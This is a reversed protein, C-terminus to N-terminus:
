QGFIKTGRKGEHRLRAELGHRGQGREVAEAEEIGGGAVLTEHAGGLLEADRGGGDGVADPHEFVMEAGRQEVAVVARHTEVIAAVLVMGVDLADEGVDVFGGLAPM